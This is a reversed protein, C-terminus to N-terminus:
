LLRKKNKHSIKYGKIDNYFQNTIEFQKSLNNENIFNGFSYIYKM